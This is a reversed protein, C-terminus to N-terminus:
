LVLFPGSRRKANQLIVKCTQGLVANLPCMKRDSRM